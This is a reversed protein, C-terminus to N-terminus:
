GAFSVRKRPKVKTPMDTKLISTDSSTTKGQKAHKRQKAKERKARAAEAALSAKIDKLKQKSDSVSATKKPKAAAAQAIQHHREVKEHSKDEQATAVVEALKLAADKDDVFHKPKKGGKQKIDNQRAM